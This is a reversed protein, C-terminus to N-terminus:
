RIFKRMHDASACIKEATERIQSKLIEFVQLWVKADEVRRIDAVRLDRRTRLQEMFTQDESGMFKETAQKVENYAKEVEVTTNLQDLPQQVMKVMATQVESLGVLEDLILPLSRISAMATSMTM